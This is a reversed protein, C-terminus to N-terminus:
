CGMGQEHGRQHEQERAQQMENLRDHLQALRSTEAFEQRDDRMADLAGYFAEVQDNVTPNMGEFRSSLDLFREQQQVLLADLRTHFTAIQLDARAEMHSRLWATMDPHLALSRVGSLDREAM